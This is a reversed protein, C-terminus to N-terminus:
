RFVGPYRREKRTAVDNHDIQLAKQTDPIGQYYEPMVRM